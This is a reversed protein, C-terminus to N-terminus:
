RFFNQGSPLIVIFHPRYRPDGDRSIQQSTNRPESHRIAATPDFLILAAKGGADLIIRLEEAAMGLATETGHGERCGYQSHDLLNGASIFATLKTNLLKELVKAPFPIRSIQCYSSLGRADLNTPKIKQLPLVSATKWADPFLGSQIIENLVLSLQESLIEPFLHLVKPALPRIPSRVQNNEGGSHDTRSPPLFFFCMKCAHLDVLVLNDSPCVRM